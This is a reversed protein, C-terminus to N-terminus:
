ALPGLIAEVARALDGSLVLDALLALDPALPRDTELKPVRARIAKRAAELAASSKLTASRLDLGQAAAMAEVAFVHGVLEATELAKRSAHTAMSVHDERSGCTPISDVSAPHALVKLESVLAAATVQAMMFGSNLGADAGSLFAPLESLDPNVLREVRRESISALDTLAIALVDAALAIPAGHFNGGAIVAGDEPFVLPNDTAANLEREVITAAFAAGERAAGHVQPMCRLSYADQVKGCDKHSFLYGSGELLRSLNEASQRQGPHPRLEHIRPSFAKNTGLLADLSLAGLVDASALLRRALVIAKAAQACSVQTGNVLALGEKAEPVLPVLGLRALLDRAPVRRGDELADGEGMLALAMHALPALDGSAGVSGREPVFPVFGANLAAVVADLTEVKVGSYGKALTNARLLMALRVLDPPLPAGVGAAHSRILNAQLARIDQPPIKVDALRGFGTNVGYVTEGRALIAEIAARCRAVRARAGPAVDIRAPARRAEGELFSAVQALTLSDGDLTLIM